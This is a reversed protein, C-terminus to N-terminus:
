LPDARLWNQKNKLVCRKIIQNCSKHMMQKRIKETFIQMLAESFISNNKVTKIAM